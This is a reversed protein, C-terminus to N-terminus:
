LERQEGSQGWKERVKIRKENDNDEILLMTDARYLMMNQIVFTQNRKLPLDISDIKVIFNLLELMKALNTKEKALMRVM